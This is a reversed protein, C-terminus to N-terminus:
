QTRLADLRQPDFGLHELFERPSWDGYIGDFSLYKELADRIERDVVSFFSGTDSTGHEAGHGLLDIFAQRSKHPVDVFSM